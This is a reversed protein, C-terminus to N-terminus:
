KSAAVLANLWTASKSKNGDPVIGRKSCEAKLDKLKLKSFDLAPEAVVPVPTADPLCLQFILASPQLMRTMPVIEGEWPDPLKAVLEVNLRVPVTAPTAVLVETATLATLGNVFDFVVLAAFGILVSEIVLTLVSQLEM